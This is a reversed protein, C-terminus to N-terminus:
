TAAPRHRQSNEETKQLVYDERAHLRDALDAQPFLATPREADVVEGNCASAYAMMDNNLGEYWEPWNDSIDKNQPCVKM